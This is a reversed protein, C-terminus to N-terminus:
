WIRGWLGSAPGPTPEPVEYDAAAGRRNVAWYRLADLVHQYPSSERQDYLDPRQKDPRVGRLAELLWPCHKSVLLPLDPDAIADFLRVCGDRIGSAEGIPVLGAREFVELQSEGTQAEAARGAPDCYTVTPSAFLGLEGDIRKIAAAFERTTMAASAERAAPAFEAVVVPPGGPSTQIWLCAPHRRGSDVARVTPWNHEAQASPRTASAGASM